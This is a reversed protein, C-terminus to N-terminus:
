VFALSAYAVVPGREGTAAGSNSYNLLRAEKAGRAKAYEIAATIPGYGCISLSKGTVLRNFGAGDLKKILEIAEGDKRKASEAPEYHTFDSSAIFVVDRKLRGAAEGVARALEGAAEFGSDGMCIAIFKIEGSAGFRRQLFPLQVEISHESQHASEDASIYPSAKLVADALERDCKATGLPTDWDATSLSLPTGLGTHNPGVLVFTGKFSRPIALYSYAATPGSYVYGAHPSVLAKLQPIEGQGAKKAREFYGDIDRETSPRSFHYFQGSVAHNRLSM